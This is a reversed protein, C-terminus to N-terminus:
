FRVGAGGTVAFRFAGGSVGAQVDVGFLLPREPPLFDAGGRVLFGLRPGIVGTSSDVAIVFAGGVRPQVDPLEFRYSAGVEVEPIWVVGYTETPTLSAAVGIDLHVGRVIRIGVDLPIRAYAFPEVFLLGGGIRIRISDERGPASASGSARPDTRDQRGSRAATPRVRRRSLEVDGEFSFRDLSVRYIWVVGEPRDLDVWAALDGGGDLLAEVAESAAYARAAPHLGPSRLARVRDASLLVIPADGQALEIEVSFTSRGRTLQVLHTGPRLRVSGRATDVETGDVRVDTGPTAYAQLPVLVDAPLRSRVRELQEGVSPPFNPDGPYDFQVSLLRAFDEEALEIRGLSHHAVARYFLLDPLLRRPLPERLCPLDQLTAAILNEAARHDLGIVLDLVRGVVSRLDPGPGGGCGRVRRVGSVTINGDVSRLFETTHLIDTADVEPVRERAEVQYRIDPLDAMYVIIGPEGRGAAQTPVAVCLLLAALITGVVAFRARRGRGASRRSRRRVGILAPLLLLFPGSGTGGVDGTCGSCSLGYPRREPDPPPPPALCDTDTADTAQDCDGDVGDGCVPEVLRPFREPDDDACDGHCGPWGDEDSDFEIDITGDCDNDV